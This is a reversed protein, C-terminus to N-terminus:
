STFHEVIEVVKEPDKVKRAGSAKSVIFIKERVGPNKSLFKGIGIESNGGFYSNATDWYDIGWQLSNKLVIQNDITNFM